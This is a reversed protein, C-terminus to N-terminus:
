GRNCLAEYPIWYGQNGDEVSVFTLMKKSDNVTVEQREEINVRDGAHSVEVPAQNSLKEQLQDPSSATPADRCVYVDDDEALQAGAYGAAAAICGSLILPSVAATLKLLKM